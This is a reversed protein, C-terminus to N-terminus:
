SFHATVDSKSFMQDCGGSGTGPCSIDDAESSAAYKLWCHRHIHADCSGCIVALDKRVVVKQCLICTSCGYRTTLVPELEAIARPQLWLTDGKESIWGVSVLKDLFNQAKVLTIPNPLKTAENLAWSSECQGGGEVFQPIYRSFLLLEDPRLCGLILNLLYCRFLVMWTRRLVHLKLFQRLIEENADVQIPEDTSAESSESPGPEDELVRIRRLTRQSM